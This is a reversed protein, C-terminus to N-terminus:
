SLSRELEVAREALTALHDHWGGQNSELDVPDVFGRHTVVLRTGEGQPELTFTVSTVLEEDLSRWTHVLRTPPEIVEYFGEIGVTLDAAPIAISLGLRGGLRVDMSEVTVVSGAPGFWRAYLEPETLLRYVTEPRADVLQDVELSLHTTETM